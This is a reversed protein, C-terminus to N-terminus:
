DIKLVNLFMPHFAPVNSLVPSFLYCELIKPNRILRSPCKASMSLCAHLSSSVLSLHVFLLVSTRIISRMSHNTVLKLSGAPRCYQIGM